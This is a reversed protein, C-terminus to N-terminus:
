RLLAKSDSPSFVGSRSTFSVVGFLLLLLFLCLFVSVLLCVCLLDVVVTREEEVRVHRHVFFPTIM